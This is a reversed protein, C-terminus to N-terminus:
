FGKRPPLMLPLRLNLHSTFKVSTIMFTSGTHLMMGGLEMVPILYTLVWEMVILPALLPYTKRPAIV